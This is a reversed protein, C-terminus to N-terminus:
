DNTKVELKDKIAEYIIKVSEEISNLHSVEVHLKKPV